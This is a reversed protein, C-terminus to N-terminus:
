DVPGPERLSETPPRSLAETRRQIERARDYLALALGTGLLAVGWILLDM